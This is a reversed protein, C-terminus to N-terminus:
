SLKSGPQFYLPIVWPVKARESTLSSEIRVGGYVGTNGETPWAREGVPGDLYRRQRRKSELIGVFISIPIGREL